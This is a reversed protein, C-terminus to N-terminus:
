ELWTDPKFDKSIGIRSYIDNLKKDLGSNIRDFLDDGMTDINVLWPGSNEVHYVVLSEIMGAERWYVEVDKIKETLVDTFHPTVNWGFSTLQVCGYEMCAARTSAGTTGKAIIARLGTERILGPYWKEFRRGLLIGTPLPEWCSHEKDAPVMGEGGTYFVNMEQTNIPPREHNEVIQKLVAQRGGWIDGSIYVIDGACLGQVDKESLPTTLRYEQGFIKM